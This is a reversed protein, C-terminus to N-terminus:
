RIKGSGDKGWRLYFESLKKAELEAVIVYQYGYTQHDIQHRWVPVEVAHEMVFKGADSKEWQMIPEAAYIEPDDVDGINFRHVVVKHIEQVLQLGDKEIVQVRVAAM